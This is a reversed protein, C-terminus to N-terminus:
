RHRDLFDAVVDQSARDWLLPAHGEGPVTYRECRPHREAMADFTAAELLPSNEGRLVLLPIASLALFQPWIVIPPTATDIEGLAKALGPDWAPAPRGEREDYVQRALREWDGDTLATFTAGYRTRLRAAAEPWGVPQEASSLQEALGALARVQIVPGIDNLVVARLVGPRQAAIAMCLLGGRSTGVFQAESVGRATMGALVDAAEIQPLYTHPPAAASRGRGRYDFAIVRRPQPIQESLCRALADFDRVNRSFGPLCVVVPADSSRPGYDRGALMTGDGTRYFFQEGGARM